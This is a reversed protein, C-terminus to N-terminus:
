GCAERAWGKFWFGPLGDLLEQLVGAEAAAGRAVHGVPEVVQGQAVFGVYDM